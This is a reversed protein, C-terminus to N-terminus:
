KIVSTWDEFIYRDGVRYYVGGQRMYVPLSPMRISYLTSIDVKQGPAGYHYISVQFTFQTGAPWLGSVYSPSIYHSVPTYIQNFDLLPLPSRTTYARIPGALYPLSFRFVVTGSATIQPPLKNQATILRARATMNEGSGGSGDFLISRLVLTYVGTEPKQHPYLYYRYDVAPFIVVRMANEISGAGTNVWIFRGSGAYRFRSAGQGFFAGAFQGDPGIAFSILSTNAMTWSGEFEFALGDAASPRVFFWRWDGSEFRWGWDNAGRIYNPPPWGRSVGETLTKWSTGVTTFVNFSYPISSPFGTVNNTVVLEGIYTTPIANSPPRVTLTFTTTGGPAITTSTPSVSVWPDTATDITTLTLTVPVPPVYPPADPGRVLDVSIVIGRNGSLKASPNSITAINWNSRAYGYNILIMEDPDPRGNGNADRTWLHIWVRVRVDFLYNDNRDFRSYPISAVVELYRYTATLNASTLLIYTRNYTYGPELSLDRRLITVVRM